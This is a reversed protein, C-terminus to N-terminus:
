WIYGDSDFNYDKDIDEYFDIYEKREQNAKSQKEQLTKKVDDEFADEAAAQQKEDETKGSEESATPLNQKLQELLAEIEKKLKKEIDM